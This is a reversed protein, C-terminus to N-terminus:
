QIVRDARITLSTPITLGLEKANKLNIVLDLKTPQEFPLDGPKQGKLIRDVFTAARRFLDLRDPGYAILMGAKVWEGESVFIPVRYKMGLQAIQAQAPTILPDDQLFVAEAKANAAERFAKDFDGIVRVHVVTFSLGGRRKVADLAQLTLATGPNNPFTIVAVRSVAPMAERLLELRKGILEVSLSAIGTVNGGPRALSQVLGFALPDGCSACIIPIERTIAKAAVARIPVGAFIIDVKERVMGRIVSETQEPAHHVHKVLINRQPVYGRDRLGALFAEYYRDDKLAIFSPYGVTPLKQGQAAVTTAALFCTIGVAVSLVRHFATM